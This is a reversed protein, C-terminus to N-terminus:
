ESFYEITFKTALHEVADSFHQKEDRTMDRAKVLYLGDGETDELGQTDLAKRIVALFEEVDLDSPEEKLASLATDCHALAHYFGYNEDDDHFPAMLARRAANWHQMAHGSPQQMAQQLGEKLKDLTKGMRKLKRIEAEEDLDDPM